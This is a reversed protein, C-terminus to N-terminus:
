GLLRGASRAARDPQRHSRGRWLGLPRQQRARGPVGRGDRRARRRMGRTASVDSARAGRRGGSESWSEEGPGSGNAGNAGNAGPGDSGRARRAASGNIGLRSRLDDAAQGFKGGWDHGRDSDSDSRAQSARRAGGKSRSALMEPWSSQGAGPDSVGRGRSGRGSSGRRGTGNGDASGSSGSRGSSRDDRWFSAGGDDWPSEDRRSSRPSAGWGADYDADDQDQWYPRSDPNSM